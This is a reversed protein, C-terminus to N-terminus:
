FRYNIGGRVINTSFRATDGFADASSNRGLDAYLYEVKATWPGAIAFELGGGLTWGARTNNAGGFGAVNARINGYALGGTIYPLVRQWISAVGLRGRFTGLFDNNVSCTTAGCPASGRIGSWDIDTELGWVLGANEWNYGLTGGVLGGSVNFNGTTAFVPGTFNSRGFGGGGNIGVYWGTWNYAAVMAPAKTPMRAPLDAAVAASGVVSLAVASLLAIRVRRMLVGEMGLKCIRARLAARTQSVCNRLRPARAVFRPSKKDVIHRHFKRRSLRSTSLVHARRLMSALDGARTEYGERLRGSGSRKAANCCIYNCRLM